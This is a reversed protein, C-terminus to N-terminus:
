KIKYAGKVCLELFDMEAITEGNIVGKHKELAADVENQVRKLLKPQRALEWLSYSIISSSTNYGAVYFLFIQAACQELTIDKLVNEKVKWETEDVNLSGANRLQTLYQIFDKRSINNKERYEIQQAVIEVMMKRVDAPLSPLNTLEFLRNVFYM